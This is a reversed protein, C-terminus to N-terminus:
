FESTNQKPITMGNALHHWGNLLFPKRIQNEPAGISLRCIRFKRLGGQFAQSATFVSQPMVMRKLPSVDGPIISLGPFVLMSKLQLHALDIVHILRFGLIM